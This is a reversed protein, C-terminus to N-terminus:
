CDEKWVSSTDRSGIGQDTRSRTQQKEGSGLAHSSPFPRLQQGGARKPPEIANSYNDPDRSCQLWGRKSEGSMRAKLGYVLEIQHYPGESRLKYSM